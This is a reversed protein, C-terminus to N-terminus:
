KEIESSSLDGKEGGLVRAKEAKGELYFRKDMRMVAFMLVVLIEFTPLIIYFAPRKHYWAPDNAM